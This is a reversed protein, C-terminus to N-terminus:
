PLVLIARFDNVNTHTVGTVLLGGVIAFFAASNDQDLFEEAHLRVQASKKHIDPGFYAGAHGGVGDFGDTDAALAWIGAHGNLETALALAYCSNRGGTGPSPGLSLSTEGGSLICLPKGKRHLKRALDAHSNALTVADGQVADGLMLVELGNKRCLEEAAALATMGSAVIKSSSRHAQSHVGHDKHHEGELAKTVASSPQIRHRRLIARADARSSTHRLTPGSGILAVDDGPVDSIALTVLPAPCVAALGGGKIRSLHKRVCNIEQITAGSNLLQRTVERKDELSVEAVPMCLLASSGGSMLVLLLDDEGLSSAFELAAHAAAVSSEDPVPHSAFMLDFGDLTMANQQHTDPAIVLGTAKDGYHDRAAKAMAMAAKGCAIVRLEGTPLAPWNGALCHEAQSAAVATNFLKLLFDEPQSIM